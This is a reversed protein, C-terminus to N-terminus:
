VTCALAHKTVPDHGVRQSGMTQLRGPHETWSIKWALMSSHLLNGNGAGPSIELGSISGVDREDGTNAPPNEVGTGGPIANVTGLFLLLPKM